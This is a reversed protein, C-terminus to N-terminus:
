YLIFVNIQSTLLFQHHTFSLTNMRAYIVICTAHEYHALKHLLIIAVNEYIGIKTAMKLKEIDNFHPRFPVILLVIELFFTHLLGQM